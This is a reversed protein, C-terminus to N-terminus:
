SPIISFNKLSVIKGSHIFRGFVRSEKLLLTSTLHPTCYLSQRVQNESNLLKLQDNILAYKASEEKRLAREKKLEPSWFTKISHMSSGLKQNTVELEKKLSSYEKQLESLQTQLEFVYAERDRERERDRGDRGMSGTQRMASDPNPSQRSRGMSDRMIYPDEDYILADRHGGGGRELSRDHLTGTSRHHHTPQESHELNRDRPDRIPIFEREPDRELSHYSRLATRGVSRSRHHGPASSARADMVPSNLEDNYYGPGTINFASSSLSHPVHSDTPLTLPSSNSSRTGGTHRGKRTQSPSLTRGQSHSAIPSGRSQVMGSSQSHPHSVSSVPYPKSPSGQGVMPMERRPPKPSRQNQGGMVGSSSGYMDRSMITQLVCVCVVVIERWSVFCLEGTACGLVFICFM